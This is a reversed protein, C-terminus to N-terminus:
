FSFQGTVTPYLQRFNNPTEMYVNGKSYFSSRNKTKLLVAFSLSRWVRTGDRHADWKLQLRTPVSMYVPYGFVRRPVHGITLEQQTQQEKLVVLCGQDLDVQFDVVKVLNVIEPQRHQNAANLGTPKYVIFIRDKFAPEVRNHGYKLFRARDEDPMHSILEALNEQDNFFDPM